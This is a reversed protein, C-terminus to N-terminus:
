LCLDNYHSISAALESSHETTSKTNTTDLSQTRNDPLSNTMGANMQLSQSFVHFISGLYGDSTSIQVLYRRFVLVGSNLTSHRSCTILNKKLVTM